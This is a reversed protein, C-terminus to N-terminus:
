CPPLMPLNILRHQELSATEPLSMNSIDKDKKKRKLYRDKEPDYIHNFRDKDKQLAEVLTQNQNITLVMKQPDVSRSKKLGSKKTMKLAEEMESQIKSLLNKNVDQQQRLSKGGTKKSSFTQVTINMTEMQDMFAKLQKFKRNNFDSM